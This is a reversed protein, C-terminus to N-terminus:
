FSFFLTMVSPMLFNASASPIGGVILPMSASASRIGRVIKSKSKWARM